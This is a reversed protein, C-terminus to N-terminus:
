LKQEPKPDLLLVMLRDPTKSSGWDGVRVKSDSWVGYAGNNKQQFVMWGM